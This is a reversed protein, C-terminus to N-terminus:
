ETFPTDSLEFYPKVEGMGQFSAPYCAKMDISVVDGTHYDMSNWLGGHGHEVCAKEIDPLFNALTLKLGDKEKAVISAAHNEGFAREALEPDGLETCIERLRGHAERTRNTRGDQLVFQDVSLQRDQGGLLWVALLEDQTAERIAQWVDGEYLHVERSQPFHLDKSWAHDNHCILEIPGKKVMYKCCNYIDEGAIDKLVIAKELIKELRVVDQVTAGTEHVRAEWEQIKRRRTPTLGQGRLAGEFHEVIRQAVFNLDGDKLSGPQRPRTEKLSVARKRSRHRSLCEPLLRHRDGDARWALDEELDRHGGPREKEGRPHSRNLRRRGM